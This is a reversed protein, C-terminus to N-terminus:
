GVEIGDSIVLAVHESVAYVELLGNEEDVMASQHEFKEEKVLLQM